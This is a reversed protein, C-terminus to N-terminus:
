FECAGIERMSGQPPFIPGHAWTLVLNVGKLVGVDVLEDIGVRVLGGFPVL